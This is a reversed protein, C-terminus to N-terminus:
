GSKRVHAMALTGAFMVGAAVGFAVIPSVATWLLGVGASSVLKGVGNVTGLAGYGTSRISEPVFEAALSPELAEQVAVYMGAVIFIAALIPIFSLNALFAIAMLIATLSGLAYGGLLVVRHGVRDAL